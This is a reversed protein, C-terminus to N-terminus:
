MYFRYEPRPIVEEPVYALIRGVESAYELTIPKRICFDASNWNMKTLSFIEKCITEMSADGHHEVIELPTPVRLGPYTDLYRSYGKTYLIYNSEGLKIVTGRLPPYIGKKRMFKIGRTEITVFDKLQINCAGNKLGHLEEASYRSTKHIVLRRPLQRMQDKYVALVDTVLKYAGTETLHPSGTTADVVARSGKLVLGEGTYTFVQAISSKIDGKANPPDKYFAIGVYCTGNELNALKWPYGEAKYYIAICFNWARTAKDQLTRDSSTLKFTRPKALQTPIGMMIAGAKILRLNSKERISELHEENFPVLTQQGTKRHERIVELIRKEKKTLKIRTAFQGQNATSCSDIIEQPIACIVVQPRPERGLYNSLKKIFLKSAESVRQRYDTVDLISGIEDATILEICEEIVKLGCGFIKTFGPFGQFLSSSAKKPQIETTCKEIWKRCNYITEKTGIIGLRISSAIARRNEYLCPGYAVLGKKPDIYQKGDGFTLSPKEIFASDFSVKTAM